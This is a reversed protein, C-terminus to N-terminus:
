LEPSQGTRTHKHSITNSVLWPTGGISYQKVVASAFKQLLVSKSYFKATSKYVNVNLKKIFM